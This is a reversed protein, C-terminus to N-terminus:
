KKEEGSKDKQTPFIAQEKTNENDEQKKIADMIMIFKVTGSNGGNLMTFNNYEESLEVLKKMRESIDKVDSNIYNCIKQIGEENFTKIGDALTNAGENLGNVGNKLSNTGEKLSGLGNTLQNLGEGLTNMQTIIQSQAVSKVQEAVQKAITTATTQATQTATMQAVSQATGNAVNGAVEEAVAQATMNAVQKATQKATTEAASIASNQSFQLIVQQQDAPLSMYNSNAELGLKVNSAIQQKQDATLALNAVQSEAKQGIELKQGQISQVAVTQAQNGIQAKQTDSLNAAQKAQEGISNLTNFDIVESKDSALQNTAKNVESKIQKAGNYAIDAGEKLEETGSALQNTGEALSISGEQIQNSATELTNVQNYVKDLQDLFDLDGKELVKPTVFTVVNGFEFDTTDMKIEISDPIEMDTKDVKLSEQLGPLAMGMVLTKSGDNIVKGNSIEINKNTDNQLVTGAVAVFPTYMKQEMGNINVKHEEKNTYQITIKVHGTKGVIEEPKAEKGDLEYKIQCEVPLEKQSEGQYYIDKQDAKWILSNGEQTFEEEGNTNEIKLLDSIDEIVELGEKNEIHTSVITQYNEGESNIKSYITEDKTFAFIPVTYTCITCLLISAMIKTKIKKNM